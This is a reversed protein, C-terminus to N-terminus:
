QKLRIIEKDQFAQTRTFLGTGANLSWNDYIAREPVTYMSENFIEGGNSFMQLKLPDKGILTPLTFSLDGPQPLPALASGVRFLNNYGGVGGTACDKLTGWLIKYWKNDQYLFLVSADLPCVALYNTLTLLYNTTVIIPDSPVIAGIITNFEASNIQIIHGSNLDSIIEDNINQFDLTGAPFDPAILHFGLRENTYETVDGLKVYM